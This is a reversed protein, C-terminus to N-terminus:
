QILSLQQTPITRIATDWSSLCQRSDSFSRCRAQLSQNYRIYVDGSTGHINLDPTAIPWLLSGLPSADLSFFAYKVSLFNGSTKEM